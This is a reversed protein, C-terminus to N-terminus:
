VGGGAAAGAAGGACGVAVGTCGSGVAGAAGSGSVAFEPPTLCMSLAPVPDHDEGPSSPHFAAWAAALGTAAPSVWFPKGFRTGLDLRTGPDAPPVPAAFAEGGGM